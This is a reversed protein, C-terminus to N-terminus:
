PYVLAPLGLTTGPALTSFPFFIFWALILVWDDVPASELFPSSPIAEGTLPFPLSPLFITMPISKPDSVVQATPRAPLLYGRVPFPVPSSRTSQMTHEQPPSPSLALSPVPSFFGKGILVLFCIAIVHIQSFFFFPWPYHWPSGFPLCPRRTRLVSAPVLPPLDPPLTSV